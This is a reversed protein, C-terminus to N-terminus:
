GDNQDPDPRAEQGPPAVDASPAPSGVAGAADDGFGVQTDAPPDENLAPRGQAPTVHPESEDPTGPSTM